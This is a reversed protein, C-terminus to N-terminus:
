ERDSSSPRLGGTARVCHSRLTTPASPISGEVKPKLPGQEALQAVRPISMAELTYFFRRLHDIKREIIIPNKFGSIKIIRLASKTPNLSLYQINKKARKLIELTVVSDKGGGVPVLFREKQKVPVAGTLNNGTSLSVIKLFNRQTFDIRNEYFFQSMGNIILDKWWRIQEQNLYGAKIEIKPSCIVKWYSPIEMLGLHFIFNNLVEKKIKRVRSTDINRINVQPRFVIDPEIIFDFSINLNNGSIKWSYSKYIFKPYKKRLIQLKQAKM